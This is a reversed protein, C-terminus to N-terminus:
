TLPVDVCPKRLNFGVPSGVSNDKGEMGLRFAGSRM